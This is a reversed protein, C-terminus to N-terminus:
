SLEQAQHFLLGHTNFLSIQLCETGASLLVESVAGTQLWRVTGHSNMKLVSAQTYTIYWPFEKAEGARLQM